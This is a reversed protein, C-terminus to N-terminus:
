IHGWLCCLMVDPDARLLGFISDVSGEESTAAIMFPYLFQTKNHNHVTLSLRSASVLQKLGDHFYRRSMSAYHIPLKCDVDLSLTASPNELILREMITGPVLQNMAAIHLPYRGCSDTTFVHSSCMDIAFNLLVEDRISAMCMHLLSGSHYGRCLSVSWLCAKLKEWCNLIESQKSAKNKKKRSIAKATNEITIQLPFYSLNNKILAGGVRQSSDCSDNDLAIGKDLLIKVVQHSYLEHHCAIHLPLNGFQDQAYVSLPYSELLLNAIRESKALHIPLLGSHSCEKIAFPYRTMVFKTIEFDDLDVALHLITLGLVTKAYLAQPFAEALQIVLDHPVRLNNKLCLAAQLPYMGSTDRGNEDVPVYINKLSAEQPYQRIRLTTYEWLHSMHTEDNNNHHVFSVGLDQIKLMCGMIESLNPNTNLLDM